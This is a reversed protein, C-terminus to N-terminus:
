AAEALRFHVDVDDFPVHILLSRKGAAVLQVSKAPDRNLLHRHPNADDARGAAGASAVPTTLFPRRREM